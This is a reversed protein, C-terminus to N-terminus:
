SESEYGLLNWPIAAILCRVQINLYNNFLALTSLEEMSLWIYNVPLNPVFEAHVIRIINRNEEKFFRGGEESQMSDHVLEHDQSLVTDLFPIVSQAEEYGGILCQVTPALEFGDFNGCEFKGQILCELGSPKRRLILGCLGPRLPRIMPQGWRSKERGDIEVNVAIVEFFKKDPRGISTSSIEWERVRNLPIPNLSSSYESKLRALFGLAKYSRIRTQDFRRPMKSRMYALKFNALVTRTDMNVTNNRRILSDLDKLSVWICNESLEVSDNALIVINRNRKKLFRGGQESQLQDVLITVSPHSQFYELYRPVRGGHAQTYNSKTAQLTPSLQVLNLNGPEIKAQMLFYLRGNVIRSIFGLYGVEPQNIIPQDWESRVHPWDTSVRIGDISFFMGTRHTLRPETPSLRWDQLEDFRIREILAKKSERHSNLFGIINNLEGQSHDNSEISHRIAKLFQLTSRM